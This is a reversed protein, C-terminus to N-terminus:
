SGFCHAPLVSFPSHPISLHPLCSLSSATPNNVLYRNIVPTAPMKGNQHDLLGEKYGETKLNLNISHFLFLSILSM